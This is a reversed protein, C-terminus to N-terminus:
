YFPLRREIEELSFVPIYQNNFWNCVSIKSNRSFAMGLAFAVVSPCILCIDVREFNVILSNAKQYIHQVYPLWDDKPNLAFSYVLKEFRSNQADPHVNWTVDHRDTIAILLLILKESSPPNDPNSLHMPPNISEKPNEFLRRPNTLNFVPYFSYQQRHYLIVSRRLDVAAGLAFSLALPLHLFLHYCCKESIFTRMLKQEVEREWERVLERWVAVWDDLNNSERINPRSIRILLDHEPLSAIKELIKVEKSM